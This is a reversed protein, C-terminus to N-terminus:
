GSDYYNEEFSCLNSEREAELLDDILTVPVGYKNEIFSRKQRVKYEESTLYEKFTESKPKGSKSFHQWTLTINDVIGTNVVEKMVQDYTGDAYTHRIMNGILGVIKQNLRIVCM